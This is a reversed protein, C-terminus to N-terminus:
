NNTVFLVLSSIFSVAGSIGLGLALGDTINDNLYGLVVYAILGIGIILLVVGVIGQKLGM